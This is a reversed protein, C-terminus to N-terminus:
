NNASVVLTWTVYGADTLEFTFRDTDSDNTYFVTWSQNCGGENTQVYAVGTGVCTLTYTVDGSTTVSDFGVIRVFIADTTDGDPYSIDSSYSGAGNKINVEISLDSDPAAVDGATTPTEELTPTADTTAVVTPTPITTGGTTATAEYTATADAYTATPNSGGSGGSGGSPPAPFSATQVGSCDGLTTVFPASVWGNGNIQWWSQNGNHGTVPAEQGINLVSLINYATTPGTRVNVDTNARLSCAQVEEETDSDTSAEAVTVTTTAPASATGDARYAIVGLTFTGASSPTWSQLVAYEPQGAPDPAEDTRVQVGDVQLDIRAVGVSDTGTSQILVEEGVTGEAPPNNIVITPTGEDSVTDEEEAPQGGTANCALATTALLVILLLLRKM